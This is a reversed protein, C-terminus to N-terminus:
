KFLLYVVVPIFIDQSLWRLLLISVCILPFPPFQRSDNKAKENERRRVYDFFSFVIYNKVIFHINGKGTWLSLSFCRRKNPSFLISSSGRPSSDLFIALDSAKEWLVWFPRSGFFFFFIGPTHTYKPAGLWWLHTWWKEGRKVCVCVCSQLSNLCSNGRRERGDDCRFFTHLSFFGLPAMKAEAIIETLTKREALQLGLRWCSVFFIWTPVCGLHCTTENMMNHENWRWRDHLIRKRRLM